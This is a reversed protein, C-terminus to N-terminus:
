ENMKQEIFHKLVQVGYIRDSLSSWEDPHHSIGDESRVFLMAVPMKTELIMLDHVTGSPIYVPKIMYAKLFEALEQQLEKKIPMPKITSNQTVSVDLKGTDAIKEAEKEIMNVIEDRSEEHIDRIDIILSVEGA